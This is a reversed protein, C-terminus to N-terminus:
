IAFDKKNIDRQRSPPLYCKCADNGLIPPLSYFIFYILRPPFDEEEEDIVLSQSLPSERLLQKPPKKWERVATM